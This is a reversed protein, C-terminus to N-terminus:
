KFFTGLRIFARAANLVSQNDSQEATKTEPMGIILALYILALLCVRALSTEIIWIPVIHGITWKKSLIAGTKSGRASVNVKMALEPIRSRLTLDLESRMLDTHYIYWGVQVNDHARGPATLGADSMVHAHVICSRHQ